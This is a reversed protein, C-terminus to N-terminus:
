VANNLRHAHWPTVRPCCGQIKWQTRFVGFTIESNNSRMLETQNRIAEAFM